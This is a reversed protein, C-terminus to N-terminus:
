MKKMILGMFYLSEIGNENRVQLMSGSYTNTGLVSALTESKIELPMGMLLESFPTKASIFLTNEAIALEAESFMCSGNFNLVKYKGLRKTWESTINQQPYQRAAVVWVGWAPALFVKEGNLKTFIFQQGPIDNWKDGQKVALGFLGSPQLKFAMSDNGPKGILSSDKVVLPFWSMNQGYNGAYDSINMDKDLINEPNFGPMNNEAIGKISCAKEIIESARWTFAGGNASNCLIIVGIGAHRNIAIQARFNLTSGGHEAQYGYKTKKLDWGIGYESGLNFPVTINQPIFMSNITESNLLPSKDKLWSQIFLGMDKVNSYIGGAPVVWTSSEDKLEMSSDYTHSVNEPSHPEPLIFSKQMGLPQFINRNIYDIYDTNSVKQIEYGLFCYGINSYIRMYGAPFATYQQNLYNVVNKYSERESNVGMMDSPFGSHHTLILRTTINDISGYLSKIKLEPVYWTVPKDIDLKGKEALQMLATATFLKTISGICYLTNDTAKVSDKLNEYGFGESWIMGDKDVLAISLGAINNKQMESKILEKYEDILLKYRISESNQAITSIIACNLICLILAIKKL